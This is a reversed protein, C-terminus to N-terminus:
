GACMQARASSGWCHCPNPPMEPPLYTSVAHTCLDMHVEHRMPALPSFTTCHGTMGPNESAAVRMLAAVAASSAMDVSNSGALDAGLQAKTLLSVPSGHLQASATQWLELLASVAQVAVGAGRPGQRRSSTPNLVACLGSHADSSGLLSVKSPAARGYAAAFSERGIGAPPRTLAFRPQQTGLNHSAVSITQWQMEYLLESVPVDDAEAVSTTLASPLPGAQKALLDCVQVSCKSGALLKNQCLVSGDQQPESPQALPIPADGHKSATIALASISVPVRTVAVESSGNPIAAASLHLSADLIAPHMCFGSAHEPQVPAIMAM